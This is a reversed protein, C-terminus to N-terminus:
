DGTAFCLARLNQLHRVRRDLTYRGLLCALMATAASRDREAAAAAAAAAPASARGAHGGCQECCCCARALALDDHM